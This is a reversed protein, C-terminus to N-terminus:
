RAPAPGPSCWCRRPSKEIHMPFHSTDLRGYGYSDRYVSLRRTNDADGNVHRFHRQQDFHSRILRELQVSLNRQRRLGFPFDFGARESTRIRPMRRHASTRSVASSSRYDLLRRHYRCQEREHGPYPVHNHRCARDAHWLYYQRFAISRRCVESFRFGTAIRASGEPQQSRSPGM